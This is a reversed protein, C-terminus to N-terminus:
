GAVVPTTMGAVVFDYHIQRPAYPSVAGVVM